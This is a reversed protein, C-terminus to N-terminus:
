SQRPSRGRATVANRLADVALAATMRADISYGVLQKSCADQVACFYLKGDRDWGDRRHRWRGHRLM